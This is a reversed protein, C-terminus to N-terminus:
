STGVFCHSYLGPLVVMLSVPHGFGKGLEDTWVRKENAIVELYCGINLPKQGDPSCM